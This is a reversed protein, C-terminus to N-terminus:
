SEREASRQGAAGRPADGAAIGSANKGIKKVAQMARDAAHVLSEATDGHEPFTAVGLSASLIIGGAEEVLFPQDAIAVRTREAVEWAGGVDTEPLVICFEDGGFRFLKDIKRIGGDIREAVQQLTRSGMAHGHVTNVSKLDDMDLFLVSVHSRFRRARAVEEGLFSEFHRRNYCGALDDRVAAERLDAVTRVNKYAPRVSRLFARASSLGATAFTESGPDSLVLFVGDAEAAEGIPFVMMVSGEGGTWPIGGPRMRATDVAAGDEGAAAVLAGSLLAPPRRGKGGSEPWSTRLELDSGGAIRQYALVSGAGMFEGLSEVCYELFRGPSLMQSARLSAALIRSDISRITM